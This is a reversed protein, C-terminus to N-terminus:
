CSASCAPLASSAAKRAAGGGVGAGAEEEEDEEAAASAALISTSSPPAWRMSRSSSRAMLVAMSMTAPLPRAPFLLKTSWSPPWSNTGSLCDVHPTFCHWSVM